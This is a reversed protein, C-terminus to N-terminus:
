RTFFEFGKAEIVAVPAPTKLAEILAEAGETEEAGTGIGAALELYTQLEPM